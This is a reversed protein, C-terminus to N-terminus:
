FLDDLTVANSILEDSYNNKKLGNASVIAMFVQKKTQTSETFVKIKRRLNEAYRKDISFIKDTYKIECVTIADDSRDILLDIQAGQINDKRSILRWSSINEATKINLAKVIQDIHKYCVAEFAYGAWVEYIPKEIQKIWYNEPLKKPKKSSLWYIYFLSFEDIVKFYEGREKDWPTHSEIFNTHELDRLRATLRGGGPSLKSLSEIEARGLGEKKQSILEILEVYAEAENFNVSM